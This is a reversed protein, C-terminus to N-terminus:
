HREVLINILEMCYYLITQVVCRCGLKCLMQLTLWQKSLRVGIIYRITYEGRIHIISSQDPLVGLGDQCVVLTGNLGASATVTATSTISTGPIVETVNFQFPPESIMGGRDGPVLSRTIGFVSVQWRHAPSSIRCTFTVSEGPCPREVSSQLQAGSVSHCM